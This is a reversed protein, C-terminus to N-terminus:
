EINRMEKITQLLALFEATMNLTFQASYIATSSYEHMFEANGFSDVVKESHEDDNYCHTNKNAYETNLIMKDSFYDYIDVGKEDCYKQLVGKPLGAVIVDTEGNQTKIYRKAGLTKFKEFNGMYDWEGLDWLLPQDPFLQMNQKKIETNWEEFIHAYKERNKSYISDTDYQVADVGIKYITNLLRHRAHATIWIGWQPLLFLKSIIQQYTKDVKKSIWENEIYDIEETYIKTVCMGYASNVKTKKIAYEPTKDKGARKLEAKGVYESNLVNLLYDPLKGRVATYAAHLKYNEWKYFLKYSEFDLETIFVTVFDAYRLRGNDIIKEDSMRICKSESEISHQTTATIKYFTVLLMCCHTDLKEFVTESDKLKTFKSMPFYCQNMVAPYSSTYDDGGINKLTQEVHFLNAHSVGGRFLWRMMQHYLKESPMCLRVANYDDATVGKKVDHRLIGTKTLPIYDQKRIYENIIYKGWESLIVVDNICYQQEKETLPTKSNRIVSFDLDGSLKKTKCFNKALYALGGGSIPLCDRFQICDLIDVTLPERKKKAFIRTVPFRKRLFQFEFGLNAVWVILKPPNKKNKGREPHTKLSENIVKLFRTFSDWTRGMYVKEDLSFQWHYMYATHSDGNNINTTEIDFGCGCDLFRKTYKGRGVCVTYKKHLALRKEIKYEGWNDVYEVM